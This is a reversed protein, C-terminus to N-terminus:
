HDDSVDVGKPALQDSPSFWLNAPDARLYRGVVRYRHSAFYDLLEQRIDPHAEVCVLLPRYREIDFGALAKPEALEIDMTVFDISTIKARELLDNLTITRVKREKGSRDYRDSFDKRSSAVLQNHAPVFLSELADSRDSVFFSFFQTRPRYKAYDAAFEEQADIAVGSWELAHELYYTNSFHRYQYSGVDVFVGNRKDKFFDRVLWEEAHESNRDPGYTQKFYDYEANAGFTRAFGVAGLLAAVLLVAPAVVVRNIIKTLKPRPTVPTSEM